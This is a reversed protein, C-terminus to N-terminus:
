SKRRCAIEVIKIGDPFLTQVPDDSNGLIGYGTEWVTGNAKLM